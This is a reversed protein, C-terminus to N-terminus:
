QLDVKRANKGGTNGLGYLGPCRPCPKNEKGSWWLIKPKRLGPTGLCLVVGVLRLKLDLPLIM